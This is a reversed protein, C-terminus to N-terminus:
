INICQLFGYMCTYIQFFYHRHTCAYVMVYNTYISWKPPLPTWVPALPQYQARNRMPDV